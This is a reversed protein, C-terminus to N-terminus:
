KGFVADCDHAGDDASHAGDVSGGRDKDDAAGDQQLHGFRIAAGYLPAGVSLFIAFALFTDEGLQLANRNMSMGLVGLLQLFIFFKSLGDQSYFQHMYQANDHWVRLIIIIQVFNMWKGAPWNSSIGYGVSGIAFACIFDYLVELWTSHVHQPGTTKRAAEVSTWFPFVGWVRGVAPNQLSSGAPAPQQQQPTAAPVPKPDPVVSPPHAPTPSKHSSSIQVGELSDDEGLYQQFLQQLSASPKDSM